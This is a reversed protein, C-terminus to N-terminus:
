GGGEERDRHTSRRALAVSFFFNLCVKFLCKGTRTGKGEGMDRKSQGGQKDGTGGEGM